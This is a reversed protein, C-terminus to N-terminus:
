GLRTLRWAKGPASLAGDAVLPVRVDQDGLKVEVTGQTSGSRLPVPAAPASVRREVPLGPWEVLLVSGSARLVSRQGWSADYEAVAQGSKVVQDFVLSQKAFDILRKSAAFAEELTPLAMVAGVITVAHGAVKIASSFMFCAGAAPDSGTKIGDIGGQGLDFDVNYVTGAVPIQANPTAVIEAVVPDKIAFGALRTLDSPTSRTNEDFGSADAFTTDKLGLTRAQANLKAVFAPMGGADWDALLTAINNGSPILLAQLAQHETLQEGARVEVVSQGDAKAQQYLTVDSNTVAISPGQMQPKLPHDALVVVATMVKAISAMPLQREGPSVDIVGLETAGIAAIGGAVAQKSAVLQRPEIAPLPRNLQFLVFGAGLVLVLVAALPVRLHRPVLLV